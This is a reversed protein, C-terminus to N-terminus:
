VDDHEIVRCPSNECTVCTTGGMATQVQATVHYIGERCCIQYIDTLTQQPTEDTTHCHVSLSPIGHAISWIHLDHVNYINPVDNFRQLLDRYQISSPVQQLLVALSSKVTAITSTFVIACFLLTAVADIWTQEPFAWLLLGAIFVAVSQLLDGLVHLYTARLNINDPLFPIYDTIDWTSSVVKAAVAPPSRIPPVTATGKYHNKKLLATKETHACTDDDHDPHSSSDKASPSNEAHGHDHGHDHDHGNEACNKHTTTSSTTTALRMEPEAVLVPIYNEEHSTASSSNHHEHGHDHGHHDHGDHHHACDDGPMHVHHEGLVAALAINVIVGIGAVLSMVQGNVPEPRWFLRVLAAAFLYLSIVALSVMSLLAALSEVRKLGYTYYQTQPLDALYAAGMAVGISALDSVLHAADSYIALSSSIYGGIVEVILFISCLLTATRFKRITTAKNKVHQQQQQQQSTSFPGKANGVHDDGGAARCPKCPSMTEVVEDRSNSRSYDHHHHGSSCNHHSPSHGHSQPSHGDASLGNMTGTTHIAGLLALAWVFANSLLFSPQERRLGRSELTVM